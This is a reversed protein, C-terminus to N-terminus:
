HCYFRLWSLSREWWAPTMVEPDCRAVAALVVAPSSCVVSAARSAPQRPHLSCWWPAHTACTSPPLKLFLHGKCGLLKSHIEKYFACDFLIYIKWKELIYQKTFQCFIIGELLFLRTMCLIRCLTWERDNMRQQFFAVSSSSFRSVLTSFTPHSSKLIWSCVWYPCLTDEVWTPILHINKLFLVQQPWSCFYRIYQLFLILFIGPFTDSLNTRHASFKKKKKPIANVTHFYRSCEAWWRSTQLAFYSCFKM